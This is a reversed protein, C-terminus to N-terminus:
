VESCGWFKMSHREVYLLRKFGSLFYSFTESCFLVSWFTLYLRLVKLFRDSGVFIGWIVGCRLVVSRFKWSDKMVAWFVHSYREFGLFVLFFMLSHRLGGLVTFFRESGSVVWSFAESFSLIGGCRRIVGWGRDLCNLAKCFGRTAESHRLVRWFVWSCWFIDLFSYSGKLVFSFVYSLRLVGSWLVGWFM